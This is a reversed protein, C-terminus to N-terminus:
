CSPSGKATIEGDKMEYVTWGPGSEKTPVTTGTAFVQGEPHIAEWFNLRRAPDLEGLIDDALIVPRVSKREELLRIQALRLSLVVSRQQGESGYTRAQRDFLGLRLDDRHPGKSTSGRELDKQRYRELYGAFDAETWEPEISSRYDLTPHEDCGSITHYTEVFGARLRACLGARAERLILGHRALAREFPEFSAPRLIGDDRAQRLLANRSKLAHHYAKLSSYYAADISDLFLDLFRRRSMPHGRLLQIDESTLAITPFRGIIEEMRRVPEGDVLIRKSQGTFTLDLECEGGGNEVIQFVVRPEPQRIHWNFLERVGATRFSRLTTILGLAELLNTKGQGNRGLIFNAGSAFRSELFNFNRFHRLRIGQIRM